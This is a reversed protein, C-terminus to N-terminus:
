PIRVENELPLGREYQDLNFLTTKVIGHLAEQTLFAQHATILVNPFTMLRALLDDQLVSSSLDKFFVNEEEEYVDLGAAGIKGSKLGDILAKTDILGGRGTNILMSGKKMRAIAAANIMHHSSHTLPLHLSVIDSCQLLDDLPVYHAGLAEVEPNVLMDHALVDCGFGKMIRTFVSGIRGCGVVGVTKGFLDFGVLGDLSFNLERVRASARCVKRDLSLILAAAHEAIAHPSYAPVRVVKIGLAAAEALDVHNFGASRLAVLAIGQEKLKGLVMANVQDHAFVCVAQHGYALHVTAESLRLDFFTLEHGYKENLEAFFPQEFKHIDFVATKMNTGEVNAECEREM